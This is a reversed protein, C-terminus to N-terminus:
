GARGNSDEESGIVALARRRVTAADQGGELLVARLSALKGEAALARERHKAVLEGCDLMWLRVGENGSLAAQAHELLPWIARMVEESAPGDKQSWWAKEIADSVIQRVAERDLAAALPPTAVPASETVAPPVPDPVGGLVLEAAAERIADAYKRDLERVDPALKIFPVLSPHDPRTRNRWIAWADHVNELTTGGGRVLALLAYLELLPTDCDPLREALEDLVEQAYNVAAEQTTETTSM